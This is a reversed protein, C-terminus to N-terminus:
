AAAKLPPIWARQQSEAVGKHTLTGLWTNFGEALGANQRLAERTRCFSHACPLIGHNLRGYLSPVAPTSCATGEEIQVLRCGTLASGVSSSLL